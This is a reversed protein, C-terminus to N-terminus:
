ALRPHVPLGVMERGIETIRVARPGPALSDLRSEVTEGTSVTESSELAGLAMLLEAARKLHAPPPDDLFPLPLARDPEVPVGWAALELVLPALDAALIEPRTRAELRDHDHESWLRLARGPGLRGARGARQAASARSIRALELRSLGTAADFRPARRLGSDIVTRVGEITLSTEAIPTALIIKRKGGPDPGLAASQGAHSLDGYLPLVVTQALAPERAELLAREVRRIEGAGPLFVLVDGTTENDGNGGAHGAGLSDIIAESVARAIAAPYMRGDAIAFGKLHRIEVPYMRGESTLIPAAVSDSLGYSLLKSVAPGTEELTASMVLIRLDERLAERAELCLALALDGHLNREHFEDFIVLAVDKLEPDSQIRRTLIGETVVEIRTRSSVRNEFRVRYGVTEGVAEGLLDAMRAAVSRAALRRPELMLIRRGAPVIGPIRLLELPVITSKGAGPPAELVAAGGARALTRALDQLVDRM